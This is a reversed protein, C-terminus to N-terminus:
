IHLVFALAVGIVFYEKLHEVLIFFEIKGVVDLPVFGFHNKAVGLELLGLVDLFVDSEHAVIKLIGIEVQIMPALSFQEIDNCNM